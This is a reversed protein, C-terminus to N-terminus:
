REHVHRKGGDVLIAGAPAGGDRNIATHCLIKSHARSLDLGAPQVGHQFHGAIDGDVLAADLDNL